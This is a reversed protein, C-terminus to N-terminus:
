KPLLTGPTLQTSNNITIQNCHTIGPVSDLEINGDQSCTSWRQTYEYGCSPNSSCGAAGGCTISIGDTFQGSSDTLECSSPNPQGNGCTNTTLSDLFEQVWIAQAIASHSASSDSVQYTIFRGIISSCGQVPQNGTDSVVVLRDPAQVAFTKSNSVQGNVTVTVNRNGVTANADVSFTASMSTSSSVSIDSVTVGSGASISTAGTVFGKGSLTATVPHGVASAAPSISSLVPRVTVPRQAHLTQDGCFPGPVDAATGRFTTGGVGMGFGHSQCWPDLTAVGSDDTSFESACEWGTQNTGDCMHANVAIVEGSDALAIIYTGGPINISQPYLCGSGCVGCTATKPNFVVADILFHRGAPEERLKMGGYVATKPLLENSAGPMAEQQLMKLDIMHSEGAQLVLPPLEYDGRGEDYQLSVWATAPRDTINKITISTDNDGETSWYEGHFGSALKNDIKSDFVYSGTQDVSSVSALLSGSGGTYSIELSGSSVSSPIQGSQWYPLLDVRQLQQANLQIAKLAFTRTTNGAQYRFVPTVQITRESVNRLNIIPNMRASAPLGMSMMPDDAGIMVGLAHLTQGLRKARMAQM